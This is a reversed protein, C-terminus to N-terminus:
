RNRRGGSVADGAPRLKRATMASPRAAAARPAVDVWGRDKRAYRAAEAKEGETEEEEDDDDYVTPAPLGRGRSKGGAGGLRRANGGKVGGGEYEDERWGLMGVAGRAGTQLTWSAITAPLSVPLLALRTVLSHDRGGHSSPPPYAFHMLLARLVGSVLGRRAYSSSASASQTSSLQDVLARLLELEEEQKEVVRVVEGVAEVVERTKEESELKTNQLSLQTRRLARSLTSVEEPSTSPQAPQSSTSSQLTTLRSELHEIRSSLLAIEASPYHVLTQHYLSHHKLLKVAHGVPKVSSGVVFLGILFRNIYREPDSLLGRAYHLISAGVAPVLFTLLLSFLEARRLSRSSAARLATVSPDEPPLTPSLSSPLVTRTYSAYYLDWPVKILQYLYFVVLALVIADSWNEARGHVIAGLPPLAVLILPLHHWGSTKEAELHEHFNDDSLFLDPDRPPELAVGKGGRMSHRNRRARRSQGSGRGEENYSGEGARSRRRRLGDGRAPGERGHEEDAYGELPDFDAMPGDPRSNPTHSDRADRNRRDRPPPPSGSDSTSSPPTPPRQTHTQTLKHTAAHPPATM